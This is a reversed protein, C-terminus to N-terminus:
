KLRSSSHDSLRKRVKPRKFTFEVLCVLRIEGQLFHLLTTKVDRDLAVAEKKNKSLLKQTLVCLDEKKKVLAHCNTWPISQLTTPKQKKFDLRTNISM